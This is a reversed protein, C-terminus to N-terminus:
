RTWPAAEDDPSGFALALHEPRLVEATPGTLLIRRRLLVADDAVAELGEISHVSFLVAAGADAAERLIRGIAAGSVRDVGALPEDLLLLDAGQALARALFARRRQGGSLQGIQRHALATLGVRALAEAVAQRDQPRPRRTLGQFGVRGQMTLDAVSLPFDWDVGESQPMYALLSRRRATEAPMGRIRVVGRRAPAFGAVADMLTSKGSGNVGLLATVTGPRLTLTADEVALVSERTVTLDRIELAPPQDRPAADPNRDATLEATLGADPLEAGPGHDAPPRPTAAHAAEIRRTRRSARAHPFPM